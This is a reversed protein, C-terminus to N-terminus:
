KLMKSVSHGSTFARSAAICVSLRTLYHKRGARNRPHCRLQPVNAHEHTRHREFAIKNALGLFTITDTSLCRQACEIAYVM